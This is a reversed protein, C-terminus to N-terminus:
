ELGVHAEIGVYMSMVALVLEKQLRKLVFFADTTGMGSRFGFKSDNVTVLKRLRKEFVREIIKM